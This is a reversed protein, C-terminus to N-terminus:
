CSGLLLVLIELLSGWCALAMPMVRPESADLFSRKETNFNGQLVGLNFYKSYRVRYLSSVELNWLDWNLDLCKSLEAILKRPKSDMASTCSEPDMPPVRFSETDRDSLCLSPSFLSVSEWFSLPPLHVTDISSRMLLCPVLSNGHYNGLTLWSHCPFTTAAHNM